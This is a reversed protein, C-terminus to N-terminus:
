VERCQRTVAGRRKRSVGSTRRCLLRFRSVALLELVFDAIFVPVSGSVSPFSVGCLMVRTRYDFISLRLGSLSCDRLRVVRM